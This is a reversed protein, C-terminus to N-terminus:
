NYIRVAAGNEGNNNSFITNIFTSNSWYIFVGGGNQRAKNGTFTTNNFISNGRYIYVAGGGDYM